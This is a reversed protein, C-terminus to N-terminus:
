APVDLLQLGEIFDDVGAPHVIQMLRRGDALSLTPQMTRAAHLVTKAKEMDGVRAHFSALVMLVTYQATPAQAAQEAVEIAEEHEGLSWYSEAQFVLFAWMLPDNPSLRIASQFHELAVKPQGAAITAAGLGFHGLSFNPNIRLSTELERIAESYSGEIALVRGLSFHSFYDRDDIDMASRAAHKAELLATERGDVWGFILQTIVCVALQAYPQSFRPDKEAAAQLLEAASVLSEKTMRHFEAVGRQYLDWADLDSTPKRRARERESHALEPEVTAAITLAIEDQLDFIDQLERDYREAWIHNGTEAEVLQATIRVRSGAKRVSGELVYRVGLERGVQKIGVAAGKYTFTSNRATVFFWRFKSLATIIDETIGDAFYEQGSDSSMNDFPLVAISPKEPLSFQAPTGPRSGRVTGPIDLRYVRVPASVNKVRHEGLDTTELTVRNRVLDLVNATICISRPEALAEIRAAINVGEGHIDQGDDIVDGLHIGMRFPLPHAQLESQIILACTVADQVTWFEALFGDGTLKVIRGSRESIAPQIVDDRAATWAAVTGETDQEVRRTYEAVDAALIASLRRQSEM